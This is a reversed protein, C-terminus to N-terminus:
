VLRALRENPGPQRARISMVVLASVFLRVAEVM